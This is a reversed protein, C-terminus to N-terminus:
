GASPCVRSIAEWDIASYTDTISAMLGVSDTQDAFARLGAAVGDLEGPLASEISDALTRASGAARSADEGSQLDFNSFDTMFTLFDNAIRACTEERGQIAIIESFDAAVGKDIASCYTTLGEIVPDPTNGSLDDIAGQIATEHDSSSRLSETLQTVADARASEGLDGALADALRSHEAEFVECASPTAIDEREEPLTM